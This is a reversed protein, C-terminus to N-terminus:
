KYPGYTVRVFYPSGKEEPVIMRLEFGYGMEVTSVPNDAKRIKQFSAPPLGGVIIEDSLSRISPINFMLGYQFADKIRVAEELSNADKIFVIQNLYRNNDEELRFDFSIDNYYEGEYFVSKYLINNETIHIPQGYMRELAYKVFEYPTGFSVGCVKRITNEDIAKLLLACFFRTSDNKEFITDNESIIYRSDDIVPLNNLTTEVAKVYGESLEYESIQGFVAVPLMLLIFLVIKKMVLSDRFSGALGTVPVLVILIIHYVDFTCVETLRSVRSSNPL